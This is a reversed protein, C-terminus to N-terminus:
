PRLEGTDRDVWNKEHKDWRFINHSSETAEKIEDAKPPVVKRISGLPQFIRSGQTARFIADLAQINSSLDVVGKTIYSLIIETEEDQIERITQAELKAEPMRKLWEHMILNANAEGDILLHNHPNYKDQYPEHTVELVRIGLIPQKRKRLTDSIKKMIGKRRIIEYPLSEADVTPATLIVHSLNPLLKLPNLYENRLRARRRILCAQCFRQKCYQGKFKSPGVQELQNGCFLARTYSRELPSKLDILARLIPESESKLKAWHSHSAPIYSNEAVYEEPYASYAGTILAKRMQAIIDLLYALILKFQFPTM